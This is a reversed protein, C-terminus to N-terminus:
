RDIVEEWYAVLSMSVVVSWLVGLGIALYDDDPWLSGVLWGGAFVLVLAVLFALAIHILKVSRESQRAHRVAVRRRSM